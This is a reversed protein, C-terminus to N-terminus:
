PTPVASSSAAASPLPVKAFTSSYDSLWTLHDLPWVIAVARGTVASIPVSGGSGDGKPDHFRSDESDSRHDGMVWIRGPPVTISFEVSSPKDGPMVYPENIAVGNVKLLHNPGSTVHDGPLGIVRKILHDDSSDPLLGVFTLGDNIANLVPGRDVPTVPPLWGGPDKFVVVDGRHLSIPGPVLKNVIVRDNIRLTDEM